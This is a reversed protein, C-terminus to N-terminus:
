RSGGAAASVRGRTADATEHASLRASRSGRISTALLAQENWEVKIWPPNGLMLDFGGRSTFVDAFELEWHFFRQRRSSESALKCRPSERRWCRMTLNM